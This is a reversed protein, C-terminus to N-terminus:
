FWCWAGAEREQRYRGPSLNGASSSSSSHGADWAKGRQERGGREAGARAQAGPRSKSSPSSFAAGVRRKMSQSCVASRLPARQAKQTIENETGAAVPVLPFAMKTCYPRTPGLVGGKPPRYSLQPKWNEGTPRSKDWVLKHPTAYEQNENCSVEGRKKGRRGQVAGRWSSDRPSRWPGGRVSHEASNCDPDEEGAKVWLWPRDCALEWFKGGTGKERM